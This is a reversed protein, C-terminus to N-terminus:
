RLKERILAMGEKGERHDRRKHWDNRWEFATRWAELAWRNHEHLLALWRDVNQGPICPGPHEPVAEIARRLDALSVQKTTGQENM